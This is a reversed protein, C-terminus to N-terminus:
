AVALSCIVQDGCAVHALQFIDQQLGWLNILCEPAGFPDWKVQFLTAEHLLM